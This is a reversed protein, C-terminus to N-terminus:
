LEQYRRRPLAIKKKKNTAHPTSKKFIFTDYISLCEKFVSEGYKVISVILSTGAVMVAFSTSPPLTVNIGPVFGSLLFIVIADFFLVSAITAAIIATTYLYKM